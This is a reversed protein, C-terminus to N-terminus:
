RGEKVTPPISFRRIVSKAIDVFVPGAVQAGYYQGASPSDIMVLVVAKANQSPVLGVFNAVYKGEATGVKQATGTKGALQYGPIRLTKGTGHDSEIVSEMFHVVTHAVQPSVMQGRPQAPITQDGIQKILRPKMMLGDNALMAYAAALNVPVCSMSQGFGNTATQLETAPDKRNYIGARQSPLGIDTKEFIGLKDMFALLRDHGIKLAWRAASVNCSKAIAQALDVDGHARNGEHSACHIVRKGVTMQGSCYDHDTPSLAGCELGEAVTLIKFTSGPEYAGMTAMNFDDGPNWSAEPDFTPWNAVALLDGTKPDVVVACGSKAKNSEVANRVAQLAATQLTTDITLTVNEGNSKERYSQDKDAVFTGSRDIFGSYQGDTGRMLADKSQEIGSIPKDGRMAGVIGAAVEAFPYDRIQCRDLSVGDAGWDRRVSRVENAKDVSLPTRWVRMAADNSPAQLESAPLGTAESLAAFFAPSKPMKTYHLGLEYADESQALIKGDSSYVTGRRAPVTTSLDFHAYRDAEYLVQARDLVQVRLQSFSAVAFLGSLSWGVLNFRATDGTRQPM